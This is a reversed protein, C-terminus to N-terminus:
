KKNMGPMRVELEAVLEDYEALTLQTYVRDKLFLEIRQTGNDRLSTLLGIFHNLDFYSSGIRVIDSM